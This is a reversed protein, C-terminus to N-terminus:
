TGGKKKLPDSPEVTTRMSMVAARMAEIRRPTSITSARLEQQAVEPYREVLEMVLRFDEETKAEKLAVVVEALAVVMRDRVAAWNM